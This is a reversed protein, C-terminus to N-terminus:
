KQYLVFNKIKENVINFMHKKEQCIDCYLMSLLIRRENEGISTSKHMIESGKFIVLTNPKMKLKYIKDNHVYQFENQSLGSKNNNENLVTLLVVYRDGYYNSYDIHWDIHDGKNAYILLSCANTDNLPTRQVPKKIIDSIKNLMENSYYLELFGMYSDDEHLKYFDFGTAKRFLFNKSDFKKNDFQSQLFLFYDKNLFNEIILINNEKKIVINDNIIKPYKNILMKKNNHIKGLFKQVKIDQLNIIYLLLFTYITFLLIFIIIFIIIIKTKDKNNKM